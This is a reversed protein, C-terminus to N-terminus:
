ETLPLRIRFTTGLLRYRRSRAFRRPPAVGSPVLWGRARWEHLLAAVRHAAEALSADFRKAFTATVRAVSHGRRIGHWVLAAPANLGHIQQEAHAYLM